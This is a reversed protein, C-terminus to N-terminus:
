PFLMYIYIHDAYKSHFFCIFFTCRDVCVHAGSATKTGWLRQPMRPPSPKPPRILDCSVSGDDITVLTTVLVM